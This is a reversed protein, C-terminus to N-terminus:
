QEDEEGDPSEDEEGNLLDLAQSVATVLDARTAEPQYADQLIEVADDVTGQLEDLEDKLDKVTSPMEFSGEGVDHLRNSNVIVAPQITPGVIGPVAITLTRCIRKKGGPARPLKQLQRFLRPLPM